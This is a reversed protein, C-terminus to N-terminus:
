PLPDFGGAHFPHCKLIRKSGLFLGKFLGYKVLAQRTYESCSPYFRCRSGLLPSVIKQYIVIVFVFLWKVNVIKLFDRLTKKNKNLNQM